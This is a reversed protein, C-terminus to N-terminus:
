QKDGIVNCVERPLAMCVLYNPAVAISDPGWNITKQFTKYKRAFIVYRRITQVKMLCSKCRVYM